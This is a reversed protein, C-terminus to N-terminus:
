ERASLGSGWIAIGKESLATFTMVNKKGYEDWQENVFGTYDEGDIHIVIENDGHLEWTGSVEGTITHDENLSILVSEIATSNISDGHNIYKYVDVVDEETYSGLSEGVYRYPSVVPWGNENFYMKHVRVEHGEGRGVFRTHFILYYENTEEDYAVSNHGPSLYGFRIKGSEGEVWEFSHGGMLKTGYKYISSDSFFTGNAGKCIILDEGNADYYPGDPNKSRSVRINYGGTSDLGGFSLFMYYYETDKNYTIYAGEIRVHNGGLLKKGYGSELPFGTNPDMELIYIGGSYSGYVMWLRGEADFFLAPDIANPHVNANYTDGNESPEGAPMGSKLIIGLDKYPGEVNDSVAIGLSALPSSGECNCYYMYYRGDNLQIVDPAWFTNTKAWTFSEEMENMADPIIPNNQTVGSGIMTWNILDSSKAGALHSGFIYYEGDVEVVSPDHVSVNSFQYTVDEDAKLKIDKIMTEIESEQETVLGGDETGESDTGNDVEKDVNDAEKDENDVENDYSSNVDTNGKERSCSTFLFVSLLVGYWLKRKM